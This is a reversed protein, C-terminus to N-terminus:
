QESERNTSEHKYSVSSQFVITLPPIVFQFPRREAIPVGFVIRSIFVRVISTMQGLNLKKMLLGFFLFIGRPQLQFFSLNGHNKM